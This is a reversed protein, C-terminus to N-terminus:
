RIAAPVTHIPGDIVKGAEDCLFLAVDDTYEPELDVIRQLAARAESEDDFWDIMNGTSFLSYSM